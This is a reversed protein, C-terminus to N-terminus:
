YITSVGAPDIFAKPANTTDRCAMGEVRARSGALKRTVVETSWATKQLCAIMYMGADNDRRRYHAQLMYRLLLATSQGMAVGKQAM